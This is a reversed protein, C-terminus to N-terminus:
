SNRKRKIDNVAAKIADAALASCHLKIQNSHTAKALDMNTINTVEDIKKGKIIESALSTNAFASACGFIQCKSDIITDDKDVKIQIKIVDGCNKVVFGSHESIAVVYNNNVEVQMTYCDDEGHPERYTITGNEEFSVLQDEEKIQNNPKYMYNEKDVKTLFLHDPTVKINYTDNIRITELYKKGSYLVKAIRYEYVGLSLNFSLVEITHAGNNTQKYLDKISINGNLTSILTDGHFCAPAGVLGTGVNPDKPDLKGINKPNNFHEVVVKHYGRKAIRSLM